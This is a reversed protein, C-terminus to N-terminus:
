EELGGGSIRFCLKRSLAIGAPMEARGQYVELLEEPVEAADM